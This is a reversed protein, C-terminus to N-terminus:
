RRGWYSPAGLLVNDEVHAALAATIFLCIHAVAGNSLFRFCCTAAYFAAEVYAIHLLSDVAACVFFSVSQQKSCLLLSILWRRGAAQARGHMLSYVPRHRWVPAPVVRSLLAPHFRVPSYLGLPFRRYRCRRHSVSVRKSHFTLRPERRTSVAVATANDDGAVSDRRHWPAGPLLSATKLQQELLSACSRRRGGSGKDAAAATSVSRRRHM